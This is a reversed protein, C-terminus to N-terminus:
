WPIEGCSSWREKLRRIPPLAVHHRGAEAFLAIGFCVKRIGDFGM